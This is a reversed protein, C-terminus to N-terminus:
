SPSGALSRRLEALHDRQHDVMSAMAAAATEGSFPGAGIREAVALEALIPDMERGGAEVESKLEAPTSDRRRRVQSANWRDADFKVAPEASPEPRSRAVAPLAAQTSSLHALLDKATWERYGTPSEWDGEVGLIEATVDALGARLCLRELEWAIAAPQELPIDHGTPYWHVATGPVQEAILAASRRKHDLFVSEGGGEALALLVPCRVQTWLVDYPQFFMARLIQVRIPATLPLRFGAGDAVLGLRVFEVLDEDWADRLFGRKEALAAELDPYSPLPPQMFKEAQEWSLGTESWPRVPGDVIALGSVLDPRDAALQLAISGGWSHGAVVVRGLDLDEVVAAADAALSAPEYGGAPAQSSGHARQDLAVLRRGPLHGALRAWFAANSSLGHLLLIAPRAPASPNWELHHLNVGERELHGHIVQHGLKAL